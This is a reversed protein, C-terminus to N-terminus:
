AKRLDKLHTQLFSLADERKNFSFDKTMRHTEGKEEYISSVKYGLPTVDIGISAVKRSGEIRAKLDVM